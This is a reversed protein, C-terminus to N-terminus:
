VLGCCGDRARLMEALSKSWAYCAMASESHVREKNRKRRRYFLVCASQMLVAHGCALIVAIPAM